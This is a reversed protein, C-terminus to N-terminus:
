YVPPRMHSLVTIVGVTMDSRRFIGAKKTEARGARLSGSCDMLDVCSIDLRGRVGRHCLARGATLQRLGKLHGHNVGCAALWRRLREIRLALFILARDRCRSIARRVSRMENNAWAHKHEEQSGLKMPTIRLKMRRSGRSCRAMSAPRAPAEQRVTRIDFNARIKWTAPPAFASTGGGPSLQRAIAVLVTAFQISM